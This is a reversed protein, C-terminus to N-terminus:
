AKSITVPSMKIFKQHPEGPGKRHYLQLDIGFGSLLLVASTASGSTTGNVVSCLYIIILAKYLQGRKPQPNAYGGVDHYFFLQGKSQATQAPM